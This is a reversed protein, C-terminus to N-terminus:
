EKELWEKICDIGFHEKDKIYLMINQFTDNYQKEDVRFEEYDYKPFRLPNKAISITRINIIEDTNPIIYTVEVVSWNKNFGLCVYTDCDIKRRSEFNLRDYKDIKVGKVDIKGYINHEMDVCYRFNDTKINLDEIGLIKAVVAQCIMAKGLNDSFSIDGTRCKRMSKILNKYSDPLNNMIDLHCKNCIYDGTWYGKDDYYRCWLPSEPSKMYTKDSGCKCCKRGKFKTKYKNDFYDERYKTVDPYRNVSYCGNCIYSKGDWGGKIDCYRTGHNNGISLDRNCICCKRDKFYGPM